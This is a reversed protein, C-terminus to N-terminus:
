LGPETGQINHSEKGTEGDRQPKTEENYPALSVQKIIIVNMYAFPLELHRTCPPRKSFIMKRGKKTQWAEEEGWRWRGERGVGRDEERRGEGAM